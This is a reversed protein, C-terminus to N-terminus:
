KKRRKKAAATDALASFGVVTVWIAAVMAASIAIVYLMEIDEVTMKIESKRRRLTQLVVILYTQPKTSTEPPNM